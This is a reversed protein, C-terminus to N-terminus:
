RRQGTRCDVATLRLTGEVCDDVYMFSRTQEGDGWIDIEHRGSLTAEAVKRCMAAPAKERGGEFTGHPGYVNHYRAIDREPRLGRPLTPVDTRQFAEGLRLRGGADGSLRGSGRAGDCEADRQKEAAYVCASSAYFFREAGADRAAMLLHTNILVSLM